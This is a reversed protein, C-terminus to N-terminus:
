ATTAVNLLRFADAVVVGGGQRTYLYWGREGTPRGANGFVHPVYEVATGVRSVAVYQQFDGALLLAEGDLPNKLVIQELTQVAKDGDGGSMM